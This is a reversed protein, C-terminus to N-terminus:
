DNDWYWSYEFFITFYAGTYSIIDFEYPLYGLGLMWWQLVTCRFRMLPLLIHGLIINSTSTMLYVVLLSWRDIYRQGFVIEDLLSSYAVTHTDSTCYLIQWSGDFMEIVMFLSLWVTWCCYSGWLFHSIHGLTSIQYVVFPHIWYWWHVIELSLIWWVDIHWALSLFWIRGFTDGTLSFM